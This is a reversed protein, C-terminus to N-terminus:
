MLYEVNNNEQQFSIRTSGLKVGNKTTYSRREAHSDGLLTGFIIELIM